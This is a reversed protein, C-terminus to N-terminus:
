ESGPFHSLRTRYRNSYRHPLMTEILMSDGSEGPPNLRDLEAARTPEVLHAVRQWTEARSKERAAAVRMLVTVVGPRIVRSSALYECGLRFLLKPPDHEM